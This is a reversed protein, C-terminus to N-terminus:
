DGRAFADGCHDIIRGDKWHEAVLYEVEEQRGIFHWLANKSERESIKWDGDARFCSSAGKNEKLVALEQSNLYMPRVSQDWLTGLALQWHGAENSESTAPCSLEQYDTGLDQNIFLPHLFSFSKLCIVHM